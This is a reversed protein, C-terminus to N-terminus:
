LFMLLTITLILYIPLIKRGNYIQDESVSIKDLKRKSFIVSILIIPITFYLSAKMWQVGKSESSSWPIIYHSPIDFVLAIQVIHLFLSFIVTAIARFHPIDLGKDEYTRYIIATLKYIIIM